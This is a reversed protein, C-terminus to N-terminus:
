LNHTSNDNTMFNTRVSCSSLILLMWGIVSGTSALNGHCNLNFRQWVSIDQNSETKLRRVPILPSGSGYM